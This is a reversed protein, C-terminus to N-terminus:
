FHSQLAAPKGRVTIGYQNTETVSFVNSSCLKSWTSLITHLSHFNKKESFIQICIQDNKEMM